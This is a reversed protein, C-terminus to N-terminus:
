FTKAMNTGTPRFGTALYLAHARPNSTAVRLRLETIGEAALRTELAALAATGFGQSQHSPFIHFDNLFACRAATDVCLWLYGILAGAATTIGLLTQGETDAGQPLDRAIERAAQAAAENPALGYSASIEAAYDPLFYALYGPYEAALLPRLRIM